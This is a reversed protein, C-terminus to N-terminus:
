RIPVFRVADAVARGYVDSTQVYGATGANFTYRGHLVWTGPGERENFLRTTTGIAHAVVIPVATSRVSHAPIWVYVDYTGSTAITPTWRYTAGHKGCSCLANAGFQSTADALCWKGTFTRGGAPDQVGPTANDIVIEGTTATPTVTFTLTGSLGGDPAPTFVAVPVPGLAGIDTTSIAARLQTASVFTTARDAGNWRVVSSSVFGSGNLTLTFGAGGVDASSPSLSSVVPV